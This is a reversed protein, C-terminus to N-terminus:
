IPLSVAVGTVQDVLAKIEDARRRVLAYYVWKGRKDAEVLGADKLIKLHHSITPQGLKFSSTIDCVCVESPSVALLSLIALRNPDALAAFVAAMTEAQQKGLAPRAAPVCCEEADVRFEIISAKDNTM